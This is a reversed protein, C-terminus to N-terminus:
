SKIFRKKPRYVMRFPYLGSIPKMIEYIANKIELVPKAILESKCAPCLVGDIMVGSLDHQVVMCTDPYFISRLCDVNFCYCNVTDTTSINIRPQNMEEEIMFDVNFQNLAAIQLLAINVEFFTQLLKGAQM